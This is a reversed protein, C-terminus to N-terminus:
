RLLAGRVRQTIEVALGAHSRVSILVNEDRVLQWGDDMPAAVNTLSETRFALLAEAEEATELREVRVFGGSTLGARWIEARESKVVDHVEALAELQVAQYPGEAAFSVASLFLLSLIHMM